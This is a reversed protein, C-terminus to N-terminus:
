ACVTKEFCVSNEVGIYQGYNPTIEYGNKLYLAVADKQRKGTELVCKTYGLEAAWKELANLLISAAGKGRYKPLTFMRKVEMADPLYEKIAGCAIATTKDYVLIVHNIKDIKNYQSYFGHEDGDIVALEADLHRVLEVFNVDTSSTRKISFTM